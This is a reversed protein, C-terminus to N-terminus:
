DFERAVDDDLWSRLMRLEDLVTSRLWDSSVSGSGAVDCAVVIMREIEAAKANARLLRETADSCAAASRNAQEKPQDLQKSM